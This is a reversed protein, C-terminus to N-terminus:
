SGEGFKSSFGIEHDLSNAISKSISLGLGSGNRNYEKELNLQVNDQFILHYDESKIGLGTDVVCIEISHNEINYTVKIKIVGSLTFKVANSILNLLIQKLRDEDTLVTMNNINEDIELKTEIKDAKNENCEVLTKLVSFSFEIVENVIIEQKNLVM